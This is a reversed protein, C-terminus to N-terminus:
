RDRVVFIPAASIAMGEGKCSAANSCAVVSPASTGQADYSTFSSCGSNIASDFSLSIHSSNQSNRAGFINPCGQTLPEYCESNDITNPSSGVCVSQSDVTVNTPSFPPSSMSHHLSFTAGKVDAEDEFSEALLPPSTM